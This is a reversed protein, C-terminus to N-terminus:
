VEFKALVPAHDSPKKWGRPTKEVWIDRLKDVLPETILIHDLRMGQNKNFAFFQYDWWTFIGKKDPYKLRLADILGFDILAKFANRERETFCIHEKFIEPDYVDIEEPAVNFDGMIILPTDKSFNTELFERFKWMFHLKYFYYDSNVPSGNPIYVSFLWIERIKEPNIKIGIIREKADPFSDAEKLGEFGSIVKEAKFKSLIAVGNRGKGGQHYIEYNLKKFILSPFEETKVKTEQIALIDLPKEQLFREVQEKRIRISNVNWTGVLM